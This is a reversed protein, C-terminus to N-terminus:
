GAEKEGTKSVRYTEPKEIWPRAIHKGPQARHKVLAAVMDLMIEGDKEPDLDILRNSTPMLSYACFDIMIQRAPSKATTGDYIIRIAPMTPPKSRYTRIMASLIADQFEEDMIQEGLVYLRALITYTKWILEPVHKTYLWQSYRQFDEAKADSVDIPRTVNTRWGPKMANQFFKSSAVLLARHVYFIKESVAVAIIEGSISSKDTPTTTTNTSHYL